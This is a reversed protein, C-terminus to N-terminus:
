GRVICGLTRAGCAALAQKARLVASHTTERLNVAVVTADSAGALSAVLRNTADDAATLVLRYASKLEYAILAPSSTAANTDPTKLPGGRTLLDIRPMPTPEVADTWKASSRLVDSLGARGVIGPFVAGASSADIILVRGSDALAFAAALSSIWGSDTAPEVTLVLLSCPFPKTLASALRDWFQSYAPALSVSRAPDAAAKLSSAQPKFSQEDAASAPPAPVRRAPEVHDFTAVGDYWDVLSEVVEESLPAPGIAFHSEITSTANLEPRITVVQELAPAAPSLSIPESPIPAPPASPTQTANEIPLVVPVVAPKADLQKLVNTLLSM